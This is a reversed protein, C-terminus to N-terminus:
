VNGEYRLELMTVDDSQLEDEIFRKLEEKVRAIYMNRNEKFLEFLRDKHFRQGQKNKAETIGDTYLFLHDGHHFQITRMKFNVESDVALIPSKTGPLWELKANHKWLPPNHGASIYDCRGTEMHLIGIWITVFMKLDNNRYLTKNVNCVADELAVGSLLQERLATKAKMMFFAAPVGEGSVDGITIVMRGDPLLYDDYFDGGIEEMPEMFSDIACFKTDPHDFRLEAYQIQRALQLDKKHREARDMTLAEIKQRSRRLNVVVIRTGLAFICLFLISICPLLMFYSSIEALPLWISFVYGAHTDRKMSVYWRNEFKIMDPSMKRASFRGLDHINKGTLAAEHRSSLLIRGDPDAIMFFGDIGLPRNKLLPIVFLAYELIPRNGSLVVELFGDGGGLPM